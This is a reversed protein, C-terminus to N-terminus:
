MSKRFDEEERERKRRAVEQEAKEADRRAQEAPSVFEGGYMQARWAEDDAGLDCRARVVRTTEHFMYRVKMTV